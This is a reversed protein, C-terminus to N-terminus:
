SRDGEERLAGLIQLEIKDKDRGAARKMRILDDLSTVKVKTGGIDLEEAKRALDPYGTTGSPTGLGDLDGYSTTFTFSDGMELTKADLRFPLGPEVGRLHAQLERLAAALKVLNPHSREYCIDLDNTYSPSGLARGAIGGIVIFAVEHRYLVDLTRGPLFPRAGSVDDTVPQRPDKAPREV